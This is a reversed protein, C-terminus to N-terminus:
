RTGAGRGHPLTLLWQQSQHAHRDEFWPGWGREAGESITLYRRNHASQLLYGIGDPADELRWRQWPESHVEWMLPHIDGSTPVTADLALKNAVSVIVVEGATGCPRLQWLQHQLGHPSWVTVPSGLETAFATDLALGCARNIILYPGSAMGKARSFVTRIDDVGIALGPLRLEVKVRAM